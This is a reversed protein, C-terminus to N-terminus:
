HGNNSWHPGDSVLKIIGYTKGLDWLAQGSLPHGVISMDIALRRTHQSVLAAPYAIGYGRVMAEAAAISLEPTGLDWQIDVGAM